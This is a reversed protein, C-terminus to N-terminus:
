FSTRVSSSDLYASCVKSQSGPPSVPHREVPNIGSGSEPASTSVFDVATTDLLVFGHSPFYLCKYVLDIPRRSLPALCRSQNMFRFVCFIVQFPPEVEGGSKVDTFAMRFCRYLPVARGALHWNSRNVFDLRCPEASPQPFADVAKVAGESYM